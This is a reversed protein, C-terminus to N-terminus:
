EGNFAGWVNPEIPVAKLLITLSAEILDKSRVPEFWQANFKGGHFLNNRVQRIHTFLLRAAPQKGQENEEWILQGERVMQKKPPHEMIYSCAARFEPDESALLEEGIVAALRDWNPDAKGDNRTLYGAAKLAYEFRAVL